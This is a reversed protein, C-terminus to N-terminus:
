KESRRAHEYDGIQKNVLSLDERLKILKNNTSEDVRMVADIRQERAILAIRYDLMGKRKM